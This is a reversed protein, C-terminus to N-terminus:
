ADAVPELHRTEVLQSVRSVDRADFKAAGAELVSAAGAAVGARLAEDLPRRSVRAALFGALLVDGSGVTSVPELHPVTVELRVETRDERFLALAGSEHTLIVNRAGLDAIEDLALVLDESGSFEHGVLQEAERVNPSVLFPEGEIGRRLPEGEADLVTPIGRRNAERVTELYFDDGVGRPLSGALVLFEAGRSLYALKDRLIALEHEEVEPGYENIETYVNSTPDVVATSTRSEGRIRVFDNLLGESTLREVLQVGTRGGALGACVVPIGLRKLARAVNIGKGGASSLATSARHRQGVQFHPVLLTRDIAANLTVTVIM